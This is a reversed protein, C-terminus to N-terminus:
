RHATVTTGARKGKIARESIIIPQRGRPRDFLWIKKAKKRPIRQPAGTPAFHREERQESPQIDVSSYELSKGRQLIGLAGKIIEATPSSVKPLRERPIIKYRQQRAELMIQETKIPQSNLFFLRGGRSNLIAGGDSEWPSIEATESKQPATQEAAADTTFM